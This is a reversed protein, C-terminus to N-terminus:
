FVFIGLNMISPPEYLWNLDSKSSVMLPYQGFDVALTKDENMWKLYTDVEDPDAPSLYLREGIMKKYYKM